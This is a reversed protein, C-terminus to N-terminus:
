AQSVVQVKEDDVWRERVKLDYVRCGRRNPGIFEKTILPDDARKRVPIHLRESRTSSSLEENGMELFLHALRLLSCMAPFISEINYLDDGRCM